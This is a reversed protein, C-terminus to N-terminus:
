KGKPAIAAGFINDTGLTVGDVSQPVYKRDSGLLYYMNVTYTGSLYGTQKDFTLSVNDISKSYKEKALDRLYDKIGEYKVNCAVAMPVKYLIKGNDISNKGDKNMTYALEAQPTTLSSISMNYKSELNYAYLIEDEATLNSPISDFITKMEDQMTKTQNEYSSKNSVMGQMQNVQQQLQEKQTRLNDNSDQLPTFILRYVLFVLVCGSLIVLLKKEKDSIKMTLKNGM